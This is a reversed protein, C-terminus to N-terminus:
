QLASKLDIFMQSIAVVLCHHVPCQHHYGLISVLRAPASRGIIGKHVGYLNRCFVHAIMLM